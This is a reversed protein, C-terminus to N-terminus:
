KLGDRWTSRNASLLEAISSGYGSLLGGGPEIKSIRWDRYKGFKRERLRHRILGILLLLLQMWGPAIVMVAYGVPSIPEAIASAVHAAVALVQMAAIWLTYNRNAYLAITILSLAAVSDVAVLYVDVQSQFQLEPNLFDEMASLLEFFVLWTLAAAREPGGGWVLASIGITWALYGQLVFRFDWTLLEVIM